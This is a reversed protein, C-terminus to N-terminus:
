ILSNKLNKLNKLSPVTAPYKGIVLPSPMRGDNALLIDARSLRLPLTMGAVSGASGTGMNRLTDLLLIPRRLVNSLALIHIDELYRDIGVPQGRTAAAARLHEPMITDTWTEDDALRGVPTNAKYWYSNKELEECIEDRLVDYFLEIGTIGRSLAHTLCSGDAKVILPRLDIGCRTSFEACTDELYALAVKDTHAEALDAGFPVCFDFSRFMAASFNRNGARILSGLVVCAKCM